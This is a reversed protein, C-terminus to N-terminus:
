SVFPVLPASCQDLHTGCSCFLTEYRKNRCLLHFIREVHTKAQEVPVFISENLKLLRLILEVYLFYVAQRWTNNNLQLM